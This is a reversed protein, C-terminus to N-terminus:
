SAESRLFSDRAWPAPSMRGRGRQLLEVEHEAAEMGRQAALFILRAPVDSAQAIRANLDEAMRLRADPITAFSQLRIPARDKGFCHPEIFRDLDIAVCVALIQADTKQFERAFLAHSNREACVGM